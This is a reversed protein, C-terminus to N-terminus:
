FDKVFTNFFTVRQKFRGLVDRDNRGEGFLVLGSRKKKNKLYNGLISDIKYM